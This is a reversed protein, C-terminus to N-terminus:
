AHFCSAPETPEAAPRSSTCSAHERECKACRCKCIRVFVYNHRWFLLNGVCPHYFDAVHLGYRRANWLSAIPVEAYKRGGGVRYLHDAAARLAGAGFVACTSREWGALLKDRASSLSLLEALFRLQTLPVNGSM